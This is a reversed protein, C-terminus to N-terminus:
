PFFVDSLSRPQIWQIEFIHRDDSFTPRDPFLKFKDNLRGSASRIQQNQAFCACSFFEHGPADM